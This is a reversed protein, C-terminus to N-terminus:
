PSWLGELDAGLADVAEDALGTLTVAVRRGPAEGVVGGDPHESLVTGEGLMERVQEGVGDRWGAYGAGARLGPLAGAVRDRLEEYAARQAALVLARARRRARAREAVLVAEADAEGQARASTRIRAAEADARAVAATAETDADALLRAADARAAALIAQRVPELPEDVPTVPPATRPKARPTM